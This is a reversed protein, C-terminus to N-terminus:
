VVFCRIGSVLSFIFCLDSRSYSRYRLLCVVKRANNIRQQGVQLVSCVGLEIEIDNPLNELLANGNIKFLHIIEEFLCVVYINYIELAIINAIIKPM